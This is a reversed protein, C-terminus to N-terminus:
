KSELSKWPSDGDPFLESILIPVITKSYQRFKDSETFCFTRAAEVFGKQLAGALKDVVRDEDNKLALIRQAVLAWSEREERSMDTNELVIKEMIKNKM